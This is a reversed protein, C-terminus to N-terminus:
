QITVAVFCTASGYGGYTDYRNAESDFTNLRKRTHRGSEYWSIHVPMTANLSKYLTSAHSKKTYRNGQTISIKILQHRSRFRLLRIRVTVLSSRDPGGSPHSTCPLCVIVLRSTTRLRECDSHLGFTRQQMRIAEYQLSYASIWVVWRTNTSSICCVTDRHM